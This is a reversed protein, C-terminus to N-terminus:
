GVVKRAKPLLNKIRRGDYFGCGLFLDGSRVIVLGQELENKGVESIEVDKGKMWDEVMEKPLELINKKALPGLLQTGEISLMLGFPTEKMVYVGVIQAGAVKVAEETAIRYRRKGSKVIVYPIEEIGYREALREKLKALEDKELVRWM